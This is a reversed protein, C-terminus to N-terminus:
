SIILDVSCFNAGLKIIGSTLSKIVMSCLAAWGCDRYEYGKRRGMGRGEGRRHSERRLGEREERVDISQM